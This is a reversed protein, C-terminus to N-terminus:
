SPRCFPSPWEYTIIQTHICIVRNAPALRIAREDLERNLHERHEGVRGPHPDDERELVRPLQGDIVERVDNVFRRCRHRLVQGLQAEGAHHGRPLVACPHEVGERVLVDPLQHRVRDELGLVGEAAAGPVVM